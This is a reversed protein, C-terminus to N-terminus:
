RAGSRPRDALARFQRLANQDGAAAKAALERMLRAEADQIRGLQDGTLQGSSRLADFQQIPNTYDQSRGAAQAIALASQLEPATEARVTPPVSVPTSPQPQSAVSPNTAEPPSM